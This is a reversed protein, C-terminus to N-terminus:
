TDHMWGTFASSDHWVFVLDFAKVVSSSIYQTNKAIIFFQEVTDEPLTEGNEEALEKHLKVLENFRTTTLCRHLLRLNKQVDTFEEAIREIDYAAAMNKNTM